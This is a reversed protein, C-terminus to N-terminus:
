LRSDSVGEGADLVVAITQDTEWSLFQPPLDLFNLRLFEQELWFEEIRSRNSFLVTLCKLPSTPSDGTPVVQGLFTLQNQALLCGGVAFLCVLRRHWLCLCVLRGYFTAVTGWLHEM